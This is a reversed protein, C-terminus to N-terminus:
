TYICFKGKDFHVYAYTCIMWEDIAFKELYYALGFRYKMGVTYSTWKTKKRRRM